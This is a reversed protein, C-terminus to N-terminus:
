GKLQQYFGVIKGIYDRTQAANEEGTIEALADIMDAYASSGEAEKQAKLINGMGANYSALAWKWQEVPTRRVTWANWMKRMYWAGARISHEPDTPRADRPLSLQRSSMVDIDWTDPMFQPIGEAGVPSKAHSDLRSEQWYQAKLQRWDLFPLWERAATEIEGDYQTAQDIRM